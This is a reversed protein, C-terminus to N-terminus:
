RSMSMRPASFGRLPVHSDFPWNDQPTRGALSTDQILKERLCTEVDRRNEVLALNLRPDVSRMKESFGAKALPKIRM